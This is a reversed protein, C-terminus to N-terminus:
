SERGERKGGERQRGELTGVPQLFGVEGVLWWLCGGGIGGFIGWVEGLSAWGFM